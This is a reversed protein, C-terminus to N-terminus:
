QGFWFSNLHYKLCYKCYFKEGVGIPISEGSPRLGFQWGWTDTTPKTKSQQWAVDWGDARLVAAIAVVVSLEIHIHPGGGSWRSSFVVRRPRLRCDSDSLSLSLSLSLAMNFRNPYSIRKLRINHRAPCKFEHKLPKFHFWCICKPSIRLHQM